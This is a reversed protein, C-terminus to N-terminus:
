NGLSTVRKYFSHYNSLMKFNSFQDFARNRLYNKYEMTEQTDMKILKSISKSLVIYDKPPAIFTERCLINSSEGADTSIIPTATFMAEILTNPFGEKISSSVFVDMSNLYKNIQQKKGLLIVNPSIGLQEIHYNLEKNSLDLGLGIMLLKWDITTNLLSVAKLLTIYDKHPDYRGITGILFTSETIGLESRTINRIQIDPYYLKEDCGNEIVDIKRKSYGSKLHHDKIIYGCYIIYTPIFHSLLINIKSLFYALLSTEQLTIPMSRISWIIRPHKLLSSLIGALFNSHTLWTHVIYPKYLKLLRFLRLPIFLLNPQDSHSLSFSKLNSSRFQELSIEDISSLSVIIHEYDNINMVVQKLIKETGGTGIRTIVHFVIKKKIKEM